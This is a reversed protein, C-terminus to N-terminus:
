AKRVPRTLKKPMVFKEVPVMTMGSGGRIKEVEGEATFTYRMVEGYGGWGEDGVVKLETDSIVEVETAMASPDAASPSLLYLRGGLNVIDTLGWLVAFRGEFRKLEKADRPETKATHKDDAALAILNLIGSALTGAPGNGENTLVSISLRRELDLHSVTIHGPYGGSHGYYTRGGIKSIILGLGYAGEPTVQCQVQRMQRKSGDTLIRDDGDLHAQFYDSLESATSYFGTASSEAYTDIHDIEIQEPGHIRSSYGKAYDDIREMVLDPGTNKLGLVDVISESVYERYPKGSAGEIILGLLSYGINSYKFHVNPDLVKGHNQIEELLEKRDPFPFELSWYGCDDGDRTMGSLHGLLARVTVCGMPAGKLEEVYTEATDDLRLKGQEVLQMCAVGTFTKSHSAIRFLHDVTM